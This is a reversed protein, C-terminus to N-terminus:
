GAAEAAKGMKKMMEDAKQEKVTRSVDVVGTVKKLVKHMVQAQRMLAETALELARQSSMNDSGTSSPDKKDISKLMDELEQIRTHLKREAETMGAFAAATTPSMQGSAFDDDSHM